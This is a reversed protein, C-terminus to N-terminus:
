EKRKYKENVELFDVVDERNECRIYDSFNNQETQTEGDEFTYTSFTESETITFEEDVVIKNNHEFPLESEIKVFKDTM